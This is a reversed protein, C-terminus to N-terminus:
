EIPMPPIDEESNLERRSINISFNPTERSENKTSSIASSYNTDELCNYPPPPEIGFKKRRMEDANRKYKLALM